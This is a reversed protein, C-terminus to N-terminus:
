QAGGQARDRPGPGRRGSPGAGRAGESDLTSLYPPDFLLTKLEYIPVASRTDAIAVTVEYLGETDTRAVIQRWGLRPFNSGFEGEEEGETLWGDARLLEIKGAALLAAQTHDECEKHSRLALTIGETIGVLGVGLVLIAVLVELLSFGRLRSM